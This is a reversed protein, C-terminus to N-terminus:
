LAEEVVLWCQDDVLGGVCCWVGCGVVEVRDRMEM